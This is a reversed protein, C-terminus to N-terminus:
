LLIFFLRKKKSKMEDPAKAWVPIPVVVGTFLNSMKAVLASGAVELEEAFPLRLSPADPAFVCTNSKPRLEDDVNEHSCALSLFL